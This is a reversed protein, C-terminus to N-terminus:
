IIKLDGTLVFQGGHEDGRFRVEADVHDGVVPIRPLVAKWAFVQTKKGIYSAGFNPEGNFGRVQDVEMTLLLETPNLEVATVQGQLRCRNPVVSVKPATM